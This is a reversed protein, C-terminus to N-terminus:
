WRDNWAYARINTREGTSRCVFFLWVSHANAVVDGVFVCASRGNCGTSFRVDNGGPMLRRSFVMGKGTVTMQSIEVETRKESESAALCEKYEDSRNNSADAAASRCAAKWMKFLSRKLKSQGDAGFLKNPDISAGTKTDFIYDSRTIHLGCSAYSSEVYFCLVRDNNASVAYDFEENEEFSREGFPKKAGPHIDWEQQIIENIKKAVAPRDASEFVPFAHGGSDSKIEKITLSQAFAFHGALLLAGIIRYRM